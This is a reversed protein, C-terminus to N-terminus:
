TTRKKRSIRPLRAMVFSASDFRGQPPTILYSSLGESGVYYINGAAKHPPFPKDWDANGQAFLAAPILLPAFVSRRLHM